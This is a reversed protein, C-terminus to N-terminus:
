ISEQGHLLTALFEKSQKSETQFALNTLLSGFIFMGFPILLMPSFGTRLIEAINLLGILLTGLCVLVVIGLWISMFILVPTVPRM